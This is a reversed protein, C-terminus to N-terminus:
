TPREQQSVTVLLLDEDPNPAAAQAKHAELVTRVLATASSGRQWIASATDVNWVSVMFFDRMAEMTDRSCRTLCIARPARVIPNPGVRLPRARLPPM